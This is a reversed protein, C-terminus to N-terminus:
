HSRPGKPPDPAFAQQASTRVLPHTDALARKVLSAPPAGAARLAQVTGLRVAWAPHELLRGAQRWLAPADLRGLSRLAEVAGVAVVAPDLGDWGAVGPARQGADELAVAIHTITVREPALKSAVRLARLRVAPEADPLLQAVPERLRRAIDALARAGRPSLPASEGLLRGLGPGDTRRDLAVLARQRDAGGLARELLDAIDAAHEVWLPELAGDAPGAFACLRDMLESAELPGPGVLVGDDPVGPEAAMVELALAAAEQAPGAGLLATRWLATLTSRDRLVGIVFAATRALAPQPGEVLPLLDGVGIGSQNGQGAGALGLGLLAGRRAEVSAGPDLALSRLLPVAGPARLRGLGIAALAAVEARPDRTAARLPAEAEPAELRGLAWVAAARLKAEPHASLEVLRPLAPRAKLRGLAILAAQGVRDGQAALITGDAAPPHEDKSADRSVDGRAETLRVLVPIVDRNGMMGALDILAPDPETDPDVLLAILPRSASGALKSWRAHAQEDKLSRRYLDPLVRRYLEVVLRREGASAARPEHALSAILEPLQGVYEAIDLERAMLDARSEPDASGAAARRLVALAAPGEGRRVLIDAAALAAKASSAEALAGGYSSLAEEPRGAREQLEAARMLVEPAHRSLEVARAAALLAQQDEYRELRIEAIQLLAEPARAPVRAAFRELWAV